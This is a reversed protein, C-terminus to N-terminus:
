RYPSIGPKSKAVRSQSSKMRQALELQSLKRKARAKGVANTLSLRIEVLAAEEPSLQLFDKASGIKWGVSQLRKLKQANM